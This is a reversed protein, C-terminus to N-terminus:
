SRERTSPQQSPAALGAGDRVAQDGHAIGIAHRLRADPMFPGIEHKRAAGDELRQEPDPRALPQADGVSAQAFADEGREHGLVTM